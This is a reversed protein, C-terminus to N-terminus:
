PGSQMVGVALASSFLLNDTLCRGHLQSQGEPVLDRVGEPIATVVGPASVWEWFGGVLGATPTWFM